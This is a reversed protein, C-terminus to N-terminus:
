STELTAAIDELFARWLRYAHHAEDLTVPCFRLIDGPKAQAIRWLDPTIVTAIKAYGGITQEVLLIIPKGDPPIQINGPMSPESVISEPCGPDRQISPGELRVGMRDAHSTVIYQSSLFREMKQDFYEDQPGPVVRLTQADSYAPIWPLRRPRSMSEGEGRFLIDGEQLRRGELGGLRGAVYTSRSGMVLPVEIGGTVALYGRCGKRASGIFLMDGARIAHSRWPLIPKENVRASMDAGTLSVVGESLVQLCPGSFTMELVAAERPNGVLLNAVSGALEDLVGSVPVGVHQFSIRGRDQVTTYPGPTRVRFIQRM